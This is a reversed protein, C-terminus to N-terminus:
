AQMATGILISSQLLESTSLISDADASVAKPMFFLNLSILSKSAGLSPCFIHTLIQVSSTDCIAQPSLPSLLASPPSPSTHTPLPISLPTVASPATPWPQHQNYVRPPSSLLVLHPVAQASPKKGAAQFEQHEQSSPCEGPFATSHCSGSANRSRGSCALAMCCHSSVKLPM